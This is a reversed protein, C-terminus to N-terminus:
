EWEIRLGGEAILELADEIDRSHWSYASPLGANLQDVTISGREQYQSILVLIANRIHEPLGAHESM